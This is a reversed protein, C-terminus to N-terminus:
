AKRRKGIMDVDCRYRAIEGHEADHIILRMDRGARYGHGAAWADRAALTRFTEVTCGKYEKRNDTHVHGAYMYRHKTVGWDQPREAAMVGPMDDMKVTDGHTSGILVKGHRYFWFKGPSTDVAVRPNNDFYAALALALAWKAHPDHNGPEVRVTVRQHRELARLICHRLARIGVQVVKAYRSDVDLQNQHAPTRNTQDDAHFFDGLPLIIADRAPPAAAVLSDLAGITLREAKALDFDDGAEAGWAYLGFHPDGMPYVALLDANSRAPPRVLPSLGKAEQTLNEIWDRIAQEVQSQDLMTKVWQLKQNGREDYLTSTGKVIFPAATPKHMDAQPAYGALAARRSVVAVTKRVYRDDAKLARAAARFSRHEIVARIIEAQRPTAWECLKEDVPLPITM